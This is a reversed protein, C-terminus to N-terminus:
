TRMEFGLRHMEEIVRARVAGIEESSLTRDPAGVTLRYSINKMGEPVQPGIYQSLYIVGELLPGAFQRIQAELRGSVERQPVAFSLDFASSPFRRIPTYARAKTGRLELIRDLDLDVIAARGTGALMTPHAEFLRGIRSEGAYVDSVRAPHEYALTETTPEVRADLAISEVIRKLEFLGQDNGYVAATLHTIESPLADGRNHIERGIEFLRFSPFHKLNLEVNAFIGPILSSRLLKQDSAIPNLVRVLDAAPLHFREAQADSLFSYNYVETYGRATLLSQLERHWMRQPNDAPVICGVLPPTPTITDYGIMRGVEEVLDDSVDVDKTARWSPTTVQFVRPGAEVVEFALRTLLAAVEQAPVARGLKRDVVELDLRIQQPKPLRQYDDTMRGALRAEPCVQKMVEIARALARVTNAPDQAKEFRMSADTRIKLASSTKRISSAKWNASEFVVRTSANTIASDRGGIVGAISVAGEADAVVGHASALTYTEENLAALIEGDLAPRVILRDGRLLDRDFAHMPQALEAMVFNTIDVVNNIPNLGISILRYQLWRPSPGVKVNEFTVASFRPCLEYDDIRVDFSDSGGPLLSLDVPDRLDRMTIAAVERAMGLHGWLDPRHTLSKNDIEIVLDPELGIAAENWEIIGAHDRGLGLEQASALMGNSEVGQITKKGIPVWITRLGLRCNPAGCAVTIPEGEGVDVTAKTLNTNGVTEVALVSAVRAGDLLEGVPEIGDCEATHVTILQELEGAAMDLGRVLEKIWQYSFKM